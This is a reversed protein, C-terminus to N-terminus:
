AARYRLIEAGHMLPGGCEKCVPMDDRAEMYKQWLLVERESVALQGHLLRAINLRKRLGSSYLGGYRVMSKGPLPIHQLWRLLFADVGLRLTEKKQTKHSTYSFNVDGEFSRSVQDKNIPGGKVYRALYKAVGNAHDYRDCFYVHWYSRGLRNILTEIHSADRGTPIMLRNVSLAKKLGSLFKGRYVQMVPKFPFLKKKRPEVWENNDNLGGHSVLAHIHPHLSLDRGWTHQALLIGARGGLYRADGSFVKLTEMTANFLIDSMLERNFRWLDHLESPLTFVIHHHPCNILTSRTHGLWAETPMARCQPCARNKCSNYWVGNVHGQECCQVHGGMVSTRCHLVSKLARYQYLPLKHRELFGSLTDRLLQQLSNRSM